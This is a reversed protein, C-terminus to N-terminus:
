GLRTEEEPPTKPEAKTPARRGGVCEHHHPSNCPAGPCSPVCGGDRCGAPASLDARDAAAAARKRAARLQDESPNNQLCMGLATIAHELGTPWAEAPDLAWLLSVLQETAIQADFVRLALDESTVSLLQAADHRDLWDDIMLATEGLRDLRRRLVALDCEGRNM